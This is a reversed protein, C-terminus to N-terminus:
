VDIASAARFLDDVQQQTLGFLPALSNVLAGKRSFTNAQEWFQWAIRESPNGDKTARLAADIDDFLTPGVAGPMGMLAARAQANTVEDPPPSQAPVPATFVVTYGDPFGASEATSDIPLLTTNEVNGDLGIIWAPINETM